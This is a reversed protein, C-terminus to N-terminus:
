KNPFELTTVCLFIHPNRFKPMTCRGRQIEVRCTLFDKSERVTEWEPVSEGIENKATGNQMQLLAKINGGIM